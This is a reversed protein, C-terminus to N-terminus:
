RAGPREAGGDGQPREPRDGRIVVLEEQRQGPAILGHRELFDTRGNMVPGFPVWRRQVVAAKLGNDRLQRVTTDVGCLASHVILVVGGPVLLDFMRACLPDLLQRGDVGADWARAPGRAACPDAAPVYPPNALVLDFREGAIVDLANGLKVRLPLRQLAANVRATWVARRSVDVGTVEAAGARIAAIALAGTGTGIDLVRAGAPIAAARMAEVLLATDDQPAYVGPARLLRM